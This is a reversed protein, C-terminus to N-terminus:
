YKNLINLWKTSLGDNLTNSPLYKKKIPIIKTNIKITREIHITERINLFKYLKYRIKRNGNIILDQNLLYSM